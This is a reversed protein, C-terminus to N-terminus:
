RVGCSSQLKLCWTCSGDVEIKATKCRLAEAAAEEAQISHRTRQADAAAQQASRDAATQSSLQLLVEATVEQIWWEGDGDAGTEVKHGHRVDSIASVNDSTRRMADELLDIAFKQRPPRDRAQLRQKAAATARDAAVTQDALSKAEVHEARLSAETDALLAALRALTDQACGGAIVLKVPKIRFKSRRHGTLHAHEVLFIFFVAPNQNHYHSATPHVCLTVFDLVQLMSQRGQLTSSTEAVMAAKGQLRELVSSAQETRAAAWTMDAAVRATEVGVGREAEAQEQAAEEMGQAVHSLQCWCNTRIAAQLM